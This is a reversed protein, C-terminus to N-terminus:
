WAKLAQKSFWKCVSFPSPSHGSSEKVTCLFLVAPQTGQKRIVTINLLTKQLPVWLNVSFFLAIYFGDKSNIKSALKVNLIVPPILKDSNKLQIKLHLHILLVCCSFNGALSFNINVNENNWLYEFMYEFSSTIYLFVFFIRGTQPIYFPLPYLSIQPIEEIVWYFLWSLPLTSNLIQIFFFVKFDQM